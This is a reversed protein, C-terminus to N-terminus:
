YDQFLEQLRKLEESTFMENLREYARKCGKFARNAKARDEYEDYGFESCFDSFNQTYEYYNADALIGYLVDSKKPRHEGAVISNNFVTYYKNNGRQLLVNYGAGCGIRGDINRNRSVYLKVNSFTDQVQKFEQTDKENYEKKMQEKMVESLVESLYVTM